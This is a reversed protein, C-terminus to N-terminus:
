ADRWGHLHKVSLLKLDKCSADLDINITFDAVTLAAHSAVLAIVPLTIYPLMSEFHTIPDHYRYSHTRSSPSILQM